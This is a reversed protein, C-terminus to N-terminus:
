ILLDLLRQHVHAIHRVHQPTLCGEHLVFRVRCAIM